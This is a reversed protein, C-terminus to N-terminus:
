RRRRTVRGPPPAPPSPTRSGSSEDPTLEVRPPWTRRSATRESPARSPVIDQGQALLWALVLQAPTCGKEKRDARDPAGAGRESSTRPSSARTTAGATASPIDAPAHVSGTLLSRGLPSYAVFSIGLERLTPLTEEAEKRYLLSFESQLASLPHVRPRPPGHGPVECLGIARVKGQEVLRKMAGVTEEIPVSPDMRHQFYLDIVDVGLRKLSTDCAQAVYEPRGNVPQPRGGSQAGARVQDRHDGPRAPGRLARGLLKENHGWGYMDSSDLLNVGLDLAHHVVAVSEEDDGKGYRGVDVHPRPRGRVGLTSNGLTRREM